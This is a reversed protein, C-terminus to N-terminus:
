PTAVRRSSGRARSRRGSRVARVGRSASVLHLGAKVPPLVLGSDERRSQPEPPEAADLRDEAAGGLDHFLDDGATEAQLRVLGEVFDTSGTESMINSFFNSSARKRFDMGSLAPSHLGSAEPKRGSLPLAPNVPRPAAWSQTAATACPEEPWTLLGARGAPWRTSWYCSAVPLSM